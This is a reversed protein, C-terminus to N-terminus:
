LEVGLKIAELIHPKATEIEVLDIDFDHDKELLAGAEWFRATALGSVALDIDSRESMQEHDLLSGFLVVKQVGFKRKLIDACRRAVTLGDKQRQKMQVLYKPRNQRARQIRELILESSM